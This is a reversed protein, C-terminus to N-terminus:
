RGAVLRRYKVPGFDGPWGPHLDLVRPDGRGIWGEADHRCSEGVPPLRRLYECTALWFNGGFCPLPAHDVHGPFEEPTLWHGGVADYGDELAAVAERWGRVLDWTMSRRWAENVTSPDHAGKTHAYLVAGNADKAYDHVRRLTVQEYGEDACCTVRPQRIWRLEDTVERRRWWPGVIGVYFPGDFGADDLAALHEALPDRWDDTKCYVHYFHAVLLPKATHAQRPQAEAVGIRASAASVRSAPSTTM